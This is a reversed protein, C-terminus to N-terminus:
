GDGGMFFCISKGQAYRGKTQVWRAVGDRGSSRMWREGRKGWGVGGLRYGCRGGVQDERLRGEAEVCLRRCRPHRARPRPPAVAPALLRSGPTRRPRQKLADDIDVRLTLAPSPFTLRKSPDQNRETDETDLIMDLALATYEKERERHAQIFISARSRDIWRRCSSRAVFAVFSGM